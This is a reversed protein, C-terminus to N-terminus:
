MLPKALSHSPFLLAALRSKSFDLSRPNVGYVCEPEEPQVLPQRAYRDAVQRLGFQSKLAARDPHIHPFPILRLLSSGEFLISKLAFSVRSSTKALTQAPTLM